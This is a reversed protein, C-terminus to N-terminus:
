KQSIQLRFRYNDKRVVVGEPSISEVTFEDVLEGEQYMTNNIMCAKRNGRVILSQLQLARVATQIALKEQEKRKRDAASGDVPQEPKPAAFRFPNSHLESLPVQVVVNHRIQDMIRATNGLLKSLLSVNASGKQMFQSITTQAKLAAPDAARASQPGVKRYMMFLGAGGIALIAFLMMATQNVPKREGTAVFESEDGSQESSGDAADDDGASGGGGSLEAALQQGDDKEPEPEVDRM